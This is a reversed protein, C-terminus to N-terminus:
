VELTRVSILVEQPLAHHLAHQVERVSHRPRSSCSIPVDWLMAGSSPIWSVFYSRCSRPQEPIPPPPNPTKRSKRNLVSAKCIPNLTSNPLPLQVAVDCFRNAEAGSVSCDFGTLLCGLVDLGM